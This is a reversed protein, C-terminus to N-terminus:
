KKYPAAINSIWIESIQDQGAHNNKSTNFRIKTGPKLSLLKENENGASGHISVPMATLAYTRGDVTLTRKGINVAGVTGGREVTGTTAMSAPSPPPQNAVLVAFAPQWLTAIAVSSVFCRLISRM